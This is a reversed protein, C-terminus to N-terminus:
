EKIGNLIENVKLIGAYDLDGMDHSRMAAYNQRSISTLPLSVAHKKGLLLAIDLDKELTTATCMPTFDKNTFMELKSKMISSAAASDFLCEIMKGWDLNAKEGLVISEALMQMSTGIMMNICIKMYRAQEKDGLYHQRNGMIKLLPLVKEYVDPEGSVLIGLTGNEAFETSGTVTSRLFHAGRSEVMEAVEASSDPDITSMDVITFGNPLSQLIGSEDEMIKKLVIANPIMCFVIDTCKVLEGPTNVSSAGEKVMMEINDKSTDCVYLEYGEKLLRKSMRSGMLGVGIWGIKM